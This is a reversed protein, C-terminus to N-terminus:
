GGAARASWYYRFADDISKRLAASDWPKTHFRFVAGSNTAEIISDVRTYGTLMLRITDPYLQKVRSLFETGTMGPMLQDSLIVQVEHQALLAFGEQASHAKLIRYGTGRLLRELAATVCPEDDVMLLTQRPADAAAQGPGRFGGQELLSEFAAAPVPRSFYYGQILDCGHRRLFGLQADTEVGEAIVQLGLSHGLAIITRAITAEGPDNVINRVFSQDVKLVDIPFNKLHALSSYGTGFDDISLKVGVAKLAQMIGVAQAVNEIAIGETLEIELWEAALGAEGLVAAVAGALEPQYFQRASLNVALRIPNHGADQWARAQVCARRMVWAGIPVILGTEEAIPIFRAPPLMGLRPHRWRLLAEAGAIRGNRADVQPQYFVELEGRELAQRLDTELRLREMADDNM